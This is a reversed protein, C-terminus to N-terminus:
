VPCAPDFPLEGVLRDWEAHTLTGSVVTCVHTTWAAANLDWRALTGFQDWVYVRNRAPDVAIWSASAGYLKAPLAEPHQPDVVLAGVGGGIVVRGGPAAVVQTIMSARQVPNSTGIQKASIPDWRQLTGDRAGLVLTGDPLFTEAAFYQQSGPVHIVRRIAGTSDDVVAVHGNMMSVALLDGNWAVQFPQEPMSATWSREPGALPHVSVRKAAPEIVALRKADPAWAIYPAGNFGALERITAWTAVDVISVTGNVRAVALRSGDSSIALANPTPGALIRRRLGLTDPDLVEVADGAVAVLAGDHPAVAIMPGVLRTLDWGQYAAPLERTSSSGFGARGSTDWRAITGDMAVTTLSRDGRDFALDVVEEGAAFSQLKVREHVDWLLVTGADGGSALLRGDQSFALDESFGPTGALEERVQGTRTDILHITGNDDDAAALLTGDPSLETSVGGPVNSFRAVTRHTHGDLVSLTHATTDLVAVRRGDASYNTPNAGAPLPALAFTGDARRHLFGNELAATASIHQGDPSVSTRWIDKLRALVHVEGDDLDRMVVASGTADNMGVLLARGDPTFGLVSMAGGAGTVLQRKVDLSEADLLWLSGLNSSVALTAGDPSPQMSVTRAGINHLSLVRPVRQLTALLDLETAPGPALHVAQAALLLALDPRREALAQAGLRAGLAERAAERAGGSSRVALGGAVVACVLLAVSALLLVRLRRSRGRELAAQARLLTRERELADRGAELFAREARTLLEPSELLRVGEVLRPGRLLDTDLRGGSVWEDAARAVAARVRRAAADDALWGALRPWGRFLSEHAVEVGEDGSVLLRGEIMVDLAGQAVPEDGVLEARSIRRRLIRGETDASALRLLMVRAAGRSEDDLGAWVSEAGHALAGLLGGASDYGARRLRQGDRNMWTQTLATSLHPLIGVEHGADTVIAEVLDDDAELGGRRAGERVVLRVDDDRLPGLLVSTAVVREALEPHFALDAWYDSRIGMALHTGSRAHALLADAFRYRQEHDICMTVLEELQDVVLLGAKPSDGLAAELRQLPHASPRIVAVPWRDSGQVAGARLAPVVGARLLSSKGSGSPGTLCVIGEAAVVRLARALTRDRGMLTGADAETYPALGKFPCESTPAHLPVLHTPSALTAAQDLVDRHIARLHPSPEVGMQDLLLRRARRYDDLAASQNGARYHAVMLQGWRRERLADRSLAQEILPVLERGEGLAMRAAVLDDTADERLTELRRAESDCRQLDTHGQYARGSWEALASEAHRQAELYHGVRLAAAASRARLEFREADVTGPLVDLRWASGFSRLLTRGRGEDSAELVGRLRSVHSALTRRASSPPSGAWLQEVIEDSTVAAGPSALLLALLQRERRGPVRVPQWM